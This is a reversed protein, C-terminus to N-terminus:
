GAQANYLEILAQLETYPIVQEPRRHSPKNGYQGPSGSDEMSKEPESIAM